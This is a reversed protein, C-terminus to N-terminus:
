IYDPDYETGDLDAGPEPPASQATQQVDNSPLSKAQTLDYYASRGIRQDFAHFSHRALKPCWAQYERASAEFAVEGFIVGLQNSIHRLQPRNKLDVEAAKKLSSFINGEPSSHMLQEFFSSSASPSGVLIALLVQAVQYPGHSDSGIFNALSADPIGIRVLRYLNALRKAARPTSLLPALRSM